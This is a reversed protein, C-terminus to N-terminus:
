DWMLLMKKKKRNIKELFENQDLEVKEKNESSNIINSIYEELKKTFFFDLEKLEKNIKILDITNEKDSKYYLLMMEELNFEKRM